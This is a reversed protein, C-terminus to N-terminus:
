IFHYKSLRLSEGFYSIEIDRPSQEASMPRGIHANSSNSQAMWPLYAFDVCTDQDLLESSAINPAAYQIEETSVSDGCVSGQELSTAPSEESESTGPHPSAHRGQSANFVTFPGAIASDSTSTSKELRSLTQSVEEDTM